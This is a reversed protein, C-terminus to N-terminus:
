FLAIFDGTSFLVRPSVTDVRFQTAMRGQLGAEDSSPSAHRIEKRGLFTGPAHRLDPAAVRRGLQGQSPRKVRKAKTEAEVCGQRALWVNDERPVLGDDEDMSAEPVPVLTALDCRIGLGVRGEPLLLELPVHGPVAPNSALQFRRAPTDKHGPFALERSLAPGHVDGLRYRKREAPTWKLIWTSELPPWPALRSSAGMGPPKGHHRRPSGKRLTRGRLPGGLGVPCEAEFRRVLRIDRRSTGSTM